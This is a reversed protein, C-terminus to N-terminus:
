LPDLLPRFARRTREVSFGYLGHTVFENLQESLPLERLPPTAHLLPLAIEHLGLWLAFGLPAGELAAISVNTELLAGYLAGSLVSFLWHASMAARQKEDASLERGDISRRLDAALIGPPPERGPPRPPVVAECALKVAAGVIGGLAGACAGRLANSPSMAPMKGSFM